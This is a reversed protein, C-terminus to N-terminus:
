GTTGQQDLSSFLMGSFIRKFRWADKGWQKIERRGGLVCDIRTSGPLHSYPSSALIEGGPQTAHTMWLGSPFNWVLTPLLSGPAQGAGRWIVASPHETSREEGCSQSPDRCMTPGERASLPPIKQSPASLSALDEVQSLVLLRKPHQCNKVAFISSLVTIRYKKQIM